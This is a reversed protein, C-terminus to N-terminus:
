PLRDRGSDTGADEGGAGSHDIERRHGPEAILMLVAVHRPEYDAQRASVPKVHVVFPRLVSSRRLLMSGSVGPADLAPLASSRLRRSHAPLRTPPSQSIASVSTDDAARPSAPTDRSRQTRGSAWRRLPPFGDNSSLLTLPRTMAGNYSAM